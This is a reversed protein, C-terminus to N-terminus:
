RQPTPVTERTTELLLQIHCRTLRFHWSCLSTPSILAQFDSPCLCLLLCVLSQHLSEHNCLPPSKSSQPPGHPQPRHQPWRPKRKRLGTATRQNERKAAPTQWSLPTGHYDCIVGSSLRLRQPCLSLDLGTQNALSYISRRKRFKKEAVAQRLQSGRCAQPGSCYLLPRLRADDNERYRSICVLSPVKHLPTEPTLQLMTKFFATYCQLYM